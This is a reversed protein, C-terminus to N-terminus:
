WKTPYVKIKQINAMKRPTLGSFEIEGVEFGYFRDKQVVSYRRAVIRDNADYLVAFLKLDYKLKPGSVPRMECFVTLEREPRNYQASLHDFVIGHETELEPARELLADCNSADRKEPQTTETEM